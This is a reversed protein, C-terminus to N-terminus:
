DSPESHDIGSFCIAFCCYDRLNQYKQISYTFISISIGTQIIKDMWTNRDLFSCFTWIIHSNGTHVDNQRNSINLFHFLFSHLWKMKRGISARSVIDHVFRLKATTRPECHLRWVLFIVCVCGFLSYTADLELWFIRVYLCYTSKWNWVFRRMARAWSNVHQHKTRGVFDIRDVKPEWRLLQWHSFQWNMQCMWMCKSTWREFTLTFGYTMGSLSFHCRM